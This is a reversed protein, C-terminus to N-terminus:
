RRCLFHRWATVCRCVPVAIALAASHRHRYCDTAAALGLRVSLWFGTLLDSANLIARYRRLTVGDFPLSIYRKDSFSVLVVIALPAVIFITVLAHFVLAVPGNQGM